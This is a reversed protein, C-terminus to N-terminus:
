KTVDSAGEPADSSLLIKYYIDWKKVTDLQPRPQAMITLAAIWIMITEKNQCLNLKIELLPVKNVKSKQRPNRLSMSIKLPTQHIREMIWQHVQVQLVKM